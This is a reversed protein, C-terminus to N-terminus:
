SQNKLFAALKPTDLTRTLHFIGTPGTSAGMYVFIHQVGQQPDIVAAAPHLGDGFRGAVGYNRAFQDKREFLCGEYRWEASGALLADPDISWLNLSQPVHRRGDIGGGERDSAVVEFRETFPNFSLDVTDFGEFGKMTKSTPRINTFTGNLPFWGSESWFQLYGISRPKERDDGLRGIIILAGKYLLM